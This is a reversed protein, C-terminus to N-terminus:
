LWFSGFSREVYALYRAIYLDCKPISYTISLVYIYVHFKCVRAGLKRCAQGIGWSPFTEDEM